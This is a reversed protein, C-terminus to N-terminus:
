DIILNDTLDAESGEKDLVVDKFAAYMAFISVPITVLLGIILCLAGALNILGLVIIFLFFQFWNKSIVQRSAEMAPWFEYKKLVIFMTTFSYAVALFIGPIILALFGVLVIVVTVITGLILAQWHEYGLTLDKIETEENRWIKHAIMYFSAGMPIFAINILNSIASAMRSPVIMLVLASVAFTIIIYVIMPIIIAGSNEKFKEWGQSIYSGMDFNYGNDILDQVSPEIAKIREEM